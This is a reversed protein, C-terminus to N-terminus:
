EFRKLSDIDNHRGILILASDPGLVVDPLPNLTMTDKLVDKIAIVTVGYKERIRLARLSKGVFADPLAVEVISYEPALPIQEILTPITLRRALRLASEKEPYIIETAGVSLFVHGRLENMSKVIINQLGINKLHVIAMVTAEMYREGMGLIAADFSENVFESLADRDMADAVIADTVHDKIDEVLGKDSDIALVQHGQKAMEVALSYGFTGLGIVVFQKM